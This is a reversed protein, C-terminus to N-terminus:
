LKLAIFYMHETTQNYFSIIDIRTVFMTQVQLKLVDTYRGFNMM